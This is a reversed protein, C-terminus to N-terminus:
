RSGAAARCGELGIQLVLLPRVPETTKVGCHQCFGLETNPKKNVIAATLVRAYGPLSQTNNGLASPASCPTLCVCCGPVNMIGFLRSREAAALTSGLEAKM